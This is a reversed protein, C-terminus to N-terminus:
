YAFDQSVTVSHTVQPYHDSQSITGDPKRAALADILITASLM